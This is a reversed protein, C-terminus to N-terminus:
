RKFFKRFFTPRQKVVTLGFSALEDAYDEVTSGLSTVLPQLHDAYHEWRSVSKNHVPQRVQTVSATRVSRQQTYFELVQPDWDLGCFDILNKANEETNTVLDEYNINFIPVPLHAKWHQMCRHYQTYAFGINKLDFAWSITDPYEFRQFYNSLCTDLPNRQIHIIKCKPFLLAIAGLKLYNSLQKNVIRLTNEPSLKRIEELHLNATTYLEDQTTQALCEPFTGTKGSSKCLSRIQDWLGIHEGLSFVDPHSSLMQDILTSGSRPMGVIFVPSSSPHGWGEFKRFLEADFFKVLSSVEKKHQQEDYIVHILQNGQRYHDFASEWEGLDDYIKGLSFQICDRSSPPMSHELMREMKNLLSKDSNSFKRTRSLMLYANGNTPDISLAKELLQTSTKQDGSQLYLNALTLLYNTNKPALKLAKKGHKFSDQKKDQNALAIALYMHAPHHSPKLEIARNLKEIAGSFNFQHTLLLAGLGTLAIINNADIDLAQKFYSIARENQGLKSLVSGMLALAEQDDPASDILISLNELALADQDANHLAISLLYRAESQSSDQDIITQLKPIADTSRGRNILQRAVDIENSNSKTSYRTNVLYIERL